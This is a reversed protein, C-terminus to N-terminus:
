APRITLDPCPQQRDTTSLQPCILARRARREQRARRAGTAQKRMDEIHENAIQSTLYPHM